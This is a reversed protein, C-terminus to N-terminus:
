MVRQLNSTEAPAPFLTELVKGSHELSTEDDAFEFTVVECDETVWVGSALRFVAADDAGEIAVRVMQDGLALLIGRLLRGNRYRIFIM